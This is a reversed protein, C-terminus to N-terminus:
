NGMLSNLTEKVRKGKTSLHLTFRRPDAADHEKIILDHGAKGTRHTKGLAAMNRNATSLDMGIADAVQRMTAGDHQCIYMFASIRQAPMQDDENRLVEVCKLLTTLTTM